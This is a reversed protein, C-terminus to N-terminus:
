AQFEISAPVEKAGDWVTVTVAVEKAGDWVTVPNPKAPTEYVKLSSIHAEGTGAPVSISPLWRPATGAPLEVDALVKTQDAPLTASAIAYPGDLKVKRDNFWNVRLDIRAESTDRYDIEFTFRRSGVPM